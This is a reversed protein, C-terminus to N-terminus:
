YDLANALDASARQHDFANAAADPKYFFRHGWIWLPFALLSWGETPFALIQIYKPYGGIGKQTNCGVTFTNYKAPSFEQNQKLEIGEVHGVPM